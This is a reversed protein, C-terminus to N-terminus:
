GHHEGRKSAYWHTLLRRVPRSVIFAGAYMIAAAPYLQGAGCVTCDYTEATYDFDLEGLASPFFAYLIGALIGTEHPYRLGIVGSATLTRIRSSYLIRGAFQCLSTIFARNAAAQKWSFRTKAAATAGKEPLPDQAAPTEKLEKQVAAAARAATEKAEDSEADLQKWALRGTAAPKEGYTYHWTYSFIKGFWAASGSCQFPRSIRLTVAFTVPVCAFTVIGLIVISMIVVIGM